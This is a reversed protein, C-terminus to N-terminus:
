AEALAFMADIPKRARAIIEAPLEVRQAPSPRELARLVQELGVSKMYPCLRCMPVFAKRPFRSRALDGLGCETVLMYYRARTREVLRMMDGTGGVFDVASALAPSCEAHALIQVGPYLKRYLAVSSADFNEHVICRGKWLIMEVGLRKGLEKALNTAMLEDPIFILSPHRAYLARLITAANASTVVVDSEAKVAASTNIYTVVPLGPHEAKLARVDAATISESLSCGAEPAPLLVEKGPNLIKATEAMFRVGCFVITKASTKACRKSLAYSDGVFDSVGHIIEARQYVHAPIVARRLKKLANIKWTLRACRELEQQGYGLDALGKEALRDAEAELQRPTPEPVSETM